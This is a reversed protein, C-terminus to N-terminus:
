ESDLGESHCVLRHHIISSVTDVAYTLQESRSQYIRHRDQRVTVVICFCVLGSEFDGEDSSLHLLV